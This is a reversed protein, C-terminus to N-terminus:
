NQGSVANNEIEFSKKVFPLILVAIIICTKLELILNNERQYRQPYLM